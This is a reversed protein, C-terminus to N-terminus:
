HLNLQERWVHDKKKYEMYIIITTISNQIPEVEWDTKPFNTFINKRTFVAKCVRIWM